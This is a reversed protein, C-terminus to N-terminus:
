YNSPWTNNLLCVYNFSYRLACLLVLSIITPFATLESSNSRIEFDSKRQASLLFLSKSISRYLFAFNILELKALVINRLHGILMSAKYYTDFLLKKIHQRYEGVIWVFMRINVMWQIKWCGFAVHEKQFATFKRKYWMVRNQFEIIDSCYTYVPDEVLLGAPNM